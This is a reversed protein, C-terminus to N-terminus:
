DLLIEAPVHGDGGQILLEAEHGRSAPALGLDPSHEKTTALYVGALIALAELIKAWGLPEHLIWASLLLTIVPMLYLFSGVRSASMKSLAYMWLWYALCSSATGLYVLSFLTTPTFHWLAPALAAEGLTFPILGLTGIGFSATLASLPSLRDAISKSILAYFAGVMTNLAMLADGWGTQQFSVGVLALIGGSALLAGLSRRLSLREKLFIAAGIITLLPSAAIFLAGNGATTYKLATNEMVYTLTTGLFGALAVKGWYPRPVELPTRTVLHVLALGLTAVTFRMLAFAIPPVDAVATKTAIFSGGWITVAILLAIVPM